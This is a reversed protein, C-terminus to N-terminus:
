KEEASKRSDEVDTGGLGERAPERVDRHDPRRHGEV